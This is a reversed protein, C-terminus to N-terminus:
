RTFASAVSVLLRLELGPVWMTPFLHSWCNDESVHAQEMPHKDKGFGM